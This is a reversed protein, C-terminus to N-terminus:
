HCKRILCHGFKRMKLPPNLSTPLGTKKLKWWVFAVVFSNWTTIKSKFCSYKYLCLFKLAGRPM